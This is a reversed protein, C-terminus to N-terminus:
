KGVKAGKEAASIVNEIIDLEPKIIQNEPLQRQHHISQMVHEYNGQSLDLEYKFLTNQKFHELAITHADKPKLKIYVFCFCLATLFGGMGSAMLMKFGFGGKQLRLREYEHQLKLHEGKISQHMDYQASWEDLNRQARQECSNLEGKLDLIVKQAEDPLLNTNQNNLCSDDM